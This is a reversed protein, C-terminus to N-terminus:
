FVVSIGILYVALYYLIMLIVGSIRTRTRHVFNWGIIADSIVFCISGVARVLDWWTRGTWLVGFMMASMTCLIAAYILGPVKLQKLKALYPKFLTLATAYLVLFVVILVIPSFGKMGIGVIVWLHALGFCAVGYIFKLELLIDACAYLFIGIVICWSAFTQQQLAGLIALGDAVLTAAAKFALVKKKNSEKGVVYVTGLVAMLVAAVIMIMSDTKGALEM